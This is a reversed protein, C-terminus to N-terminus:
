LLYPSALLLFLSGFSLEGRDKLAQSKFGLPATRGEKWKLYVLSCFIAIWYFVYSLVTAYTATNNWGLIANFIMWGGNGTTIEPNGYNVSLHPPLSLFFSSFFLFTLEYTL